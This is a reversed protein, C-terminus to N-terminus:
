RRRLRRLPPPVARRDRAADRRRRRGRHPVPGHDAPLRQPGLRRLPRPRRAPRHRGRRDLDGHDPARRPRRRHQRHRRHPLGRARAAPVGGPDPAHDAGTLVEPHDADLVTDDSTPCRRGPATSARSPAVPQPHRNVWTNAARFQFTPSRTRSRSRTSPPSCRQRHRRRQPAPPRHRHDDLEGTSTPTTAPEDLPHTHPLRAPTPATSGATPQPHEQATTLRGAGRGRLVRHGVM